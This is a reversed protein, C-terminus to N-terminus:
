LSEMRLFEPCGVPSSFCMNKVDIIDGPQWEDGVDACGIDMFVYTTSDITVDEIDISGNNSGPGLAPANIFLFSGDTSSATTTLKRDPYDSSLNLSLNVQVPAVDELNEPCIPDSLIDTRGSFNGAVYGRVTVTLPYVPINIITSYGNELNHQVSPSLNRTSEYTTFGDKSVRIEVDGEKIGTFDAYGDDNTSKQVSYGAQMVNVVAESLGGKKAIQSQDIVNVRLSFDGHQDKSCSSIVVM